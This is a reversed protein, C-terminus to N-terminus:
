AHCVDIAFLYDSISFLRNSVVLYYVFGSYHHLRSGVNPCNRWASGGVQPRHPFSIIKESTFGEKRMLKSM